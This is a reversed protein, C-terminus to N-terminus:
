QAVDVLSEEGTGIRIKQPVPPYYDKSILEKQTEGNEKITRYVTTRYGKTGEQEVIMKGRPLLPDTQVKVSPEIVENIQNDIHVYPLNSADGFIRFTLLNRTLETKIVLNAGTTNQFKLDIYGYNVTADLGVPVYGVLLSHRKREQIPLNTRLIANYLTSSVQCVGGGQGPIFVRDEIVLAEQYGGETDRPGVVENFSFIEGPPIVHSDLALSALRINISRPKNAPNFYTTFKALLGNVQTSIIQQNTVSPQIEKIALIIRGQWRSPLRSRLEKTTAAIDIEQGPVSPELIVRDGQYVLRADKAERYANPFLTRFLEATKKEDVVIQPTIDIGQRYTRWWERVRNILNGRRGVSEAEDLVKELDVGVAMQRLTVEQDQGQSTLIISHSGFNDLWSVVRKRAEERSLGGINEGAITVGKLMQRPAPQWSFGTIIITALIFAALWVGKSRIPQM